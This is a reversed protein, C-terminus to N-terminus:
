SCSSNPVSGTADFFILLRGSDFAISFWVTEAEEEEPATTTPEPTETPFVVLRQDVWILSWSVVGGAATLRVKPM